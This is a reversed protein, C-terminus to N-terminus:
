NRPLSNLDRKMGGSVAAERLDSSGEGLSLREQLIEKCDKKKKKKQGRKIAQPIQTGLGPILGTCRVTCTRVVPGGPFEVKCDEKRICIYINFIYTALLYNCSTDHM